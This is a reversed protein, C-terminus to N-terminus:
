IINIISTKIIQRIIVKLKFGVDEQRILFAFGRGIEEWEIQEEKGSTPMMGRYWIFESQKKDAFELDIKCPYVYFGALLSTPLSIANIWPWNYLIKYKDDLLKLSFENNVDELESLISTFEKNAM